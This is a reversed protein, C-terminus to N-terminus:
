QNREAHARQDEVSKGASLNGNEARPSHYPRKGEIQAGEARSNM